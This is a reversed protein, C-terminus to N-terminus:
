EVPERRRAPASAGPSTGGLAALRKRAEREILARLGAEVVATKQTLGSARRAEALLEDDINITTRTKM